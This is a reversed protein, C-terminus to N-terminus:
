RLRLKEGVEIIDPDGSQIRGDVNLQTLKEVKKTVSMASSGATLESRAIESLSDGPQVVYTRPAARRIPAAVSATAPRPPPAAALRPAAPTVAPGAVSVRSAGRTEARAARTGRVRLGRARNAEPHGALLVGSQVSAEGVGNPAARGAFVAGLAAGTGLVGLLAACVLGFNLAADVERRRQRWLAALLLLGVLGVVLAVVEPPVGTGAQPGDRSAVGTPAPRALQREDASEAGIQPAPSKRELKSPQTQRHAPTAAPQAYLSRKTQRGVIGDVALGHRQQFREVAGETLPGYLGDIPGPPNGLRRLRRQLVRVADSGAAGEYGSGRALVGASALKGGEAAHGAAPLLLAVATAVLAALLLQSRRTRECVM